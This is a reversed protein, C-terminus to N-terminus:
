LITETQKQWLSLGAAAQSVAAIVATELRLVRPGLHALQWGNKRLADREAPSWGREPGFALLGDMAGKPLCESLPGSAEYHDLAVRMSIQYSQSLATQLDPFVSVEPLHTGFSQETGLRLHRRWEDTTWLRSRHYSPEGREAAFFDIRRVGLSAADFLLKRASQPRPLGVLLRIPLAEPAPETGVLSLTLGGDASLEVVKARARQGNVFGVFVRTGIEARLVRRIHAARSDDGSLKIDEFPKEFLILNM